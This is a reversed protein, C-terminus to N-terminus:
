QNAQMYRSSSWFWKEYQKEGMINWLKNKSIVEMKVHITWTYMWIEINLYTAFVNVTKGNFKASILLVNHHFFSMLFIIPIKCNFYDQLQYKDGYLNLTKYIVPPIIDVPALATTITHWVSRLQRWKRRNALLYEPCIINKVSDYEFANILESIDNVFDGYLSSLM